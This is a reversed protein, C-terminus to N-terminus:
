PPTTGSIAARACTSHRSSITAWAKRSAPMPKPAARRRPLSPRAPGSRRGAPRPQSRWPPPAPARAAAKDGDIMQFRMRESDAEGFAQLRGIQQQQHGAPMGLEQDHVGDAAVSRSPVVMSSARPSAKSLVALSNPRPKGPPGATSCAARAPRASRKARGRGISPRGSGCKENAPSLVATRWWACARTGRPSCSTASRHAAKSAATASLTASRTRRPISIAAPCSPAPAM